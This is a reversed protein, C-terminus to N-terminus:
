PTVTVITNGPVISVTATITSIGSAVGTVLGTNSVVTAVATTGSTWAALSTLDYSTGDSYNGTAKMQLKTGVTILPYIPTVSLSTLIASNVTLITSGTVAGSTATITVAGRAIGTVMGTSSMAALAPSSSSWTVLATIDFSSGDSYAGTATFQRSIGVPISADAPTVSISSLTASNGTLTTSGSISGSAATITATGTALTTAMGTSSVTAVATNSSSWTVLATVDFSSGDSYTGTATFQRPVGVPLSPNAPTVSISSLTASSGTFTTSGSISGSAATITAAGTALSTALGTSSVTAVATNSSTWAVVTTIDFHSGDSYTGTATFQQNIGVPISPNVPTVSISSLTASYVNLLTIGKSGSTSYSSSISSAATITTTGPGVATALGSSNITAVNTDSSTWTVQTTMDSPTADNFYGLANFQQTAGAPISTNAPSVVIGNLAREGKGLDGCATLSLAFFAWLFIRIFLSINRM